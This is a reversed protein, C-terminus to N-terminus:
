DLYGHRIESPGQYRPTSPQEPHASVAPNTIDVGTGVLKPLKDLAESTDTGTLQKRITSYAHGQRMGEVFKLLTRESHRAHAEELRLGPLLKAQEPSLEWVIQGRKVM